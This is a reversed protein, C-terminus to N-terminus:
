APKTDALPKPYRKNLLDNRCAASHLRKYRAGINRNLKAAFIGFDRVKGAAGLLAHVACACAARASKDILHRRKQLSIGGPKVGQCRFGCVDVVNSRTATDEGLAIDLRKDILTSRPFVDRCGNELCHDILGDAPKCAPTGYPAVDSKQASRQM